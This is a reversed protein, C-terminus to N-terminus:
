VNGRKRTPTRNGSDAPRAVTYTRWSEREAFLRLIKAGVRVVAGCESCFM